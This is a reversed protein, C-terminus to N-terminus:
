TSKKIAEQISSLIAKEFIALANVDKKNAYISEIEQLLILNDKAQAILKANEMCEFVGGKTPTPCTAIIGRGFKTIKLGEQTWGSHKSIEKMEQAEADKSIETRHTNKM